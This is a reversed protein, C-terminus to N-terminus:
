ISFLDKYLFVHQWIPFDLEFKAATSIFHADFGVHCLQTCLCIYCDCVRFSGEITM